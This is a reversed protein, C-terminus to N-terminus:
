AWRKKLKRSFLHNTWTEYAKTNHKLIHERLKDSCSKLVKLPVEADRPINKLEQYYIREWLQIQAAMEESSVRYGLSKIRLKNALIYEKLTREWANM